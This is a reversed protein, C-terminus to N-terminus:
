KKEFKVHRYKTEGCKSVAIYETPRKWWLFGLFQSRLAILYGSNDYGKDTITVKSRPDTSTVNGKVWMCSDIQSFPISYLTKGIPKIQTNAIKKEDIPKADGMKAAKNVSDRYSIELEYYERVQSLKKGSAELVSDFRIKWATQMEAFEKRSLEININSQDVSKTLQEVNSEQRKREKKEHKWSAYFIGSVTLLVICIGVLILTLKNMKRETNLSM